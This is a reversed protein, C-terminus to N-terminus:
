ELYVISEVNGNEKKSWLLAADGLHPFKEIALRLMRRRLVLRAQRIGPHWFYDDLSWECAASERMLVSLENRAGTKEDQPPGFMECAQRALEGQSWDPLAIQAAEVLDLLKQSKANSAQAALTGRQRSLEIEESFIAEGEVQQVRGAAFLRMPRGRGQHPNPQSGDAEGLFREILRRTWGRHRLESVSFHSVSTPPASLTLSNM